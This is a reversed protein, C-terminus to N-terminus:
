DQKLFYVPSEWILYLVIFTSVSLPSILFPFFSFFFFRPSLFILLHALDHNSGCELERTEGVQRKEKARRLMGGDTLTPKAKGVSPNGGIACVPWALCPAAV